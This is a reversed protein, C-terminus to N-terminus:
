WLASLVQWGELYKEVPTTPLLPLALQKVSSATRSVAGLKLQVCNMFIKGALMVHVFAFPCVVGSGALPFSDPAAPLFLLLSISSPPMFKRRKNVQFSRRWEVSMLHFEILVFIYKENSSNWCSNSLGPSCFIGPFFSKRANHIRGM